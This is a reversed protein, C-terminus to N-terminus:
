GRVELGLGLCHDVGTACQAWGRSGAVVDEAGHDEAAVGLCALRQAVFRDNHVHEGEERRAVLGGRGGQGQRTVIQTQVRGGQFIRALLDVGRQRCRYVVARLAYLVECGQFPM